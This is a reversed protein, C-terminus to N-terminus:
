ERGRVREWERERMCSVGKEKEEKEELEEEREM